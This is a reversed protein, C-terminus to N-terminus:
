NFIVNKKVWLHFSITKYRNQKPNRSGGNEEKRTDVRNNYINNYNPDTTINSERM